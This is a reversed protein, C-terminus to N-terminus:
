LITNIENVVESPTKLAKVIFLDVELDKAKNMDDQQSQNSLIVFKADPHLNKSRYEQAFTWGDMGPMIIDFIVADVKEEEKLKDLADQASSFSMVTYGSNKFKTVYMDLLFKDDDIIVIKKNNNNTDTM